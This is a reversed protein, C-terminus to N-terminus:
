ASSLYSGLWCSPQQIWCMGRQIHCTPPSTRHPQPGQSWCHNDVQDKSGPSTWATSKIPSFGQNNRPLHEARGSGLGRLQSWGQRLRAYGAVGRGTWLGECVGPWRVCWDLRPWLQCLVYALSTKTRVELSPWFLWQNRSQRFSSFAWFSWGFRPCGACSWSISDRQWTSSFLCPSRSLKITTVLSFSSTLLAKREQTQTSLAARGERPWGLQCGVLLMASGPGTSAGWGFCCM